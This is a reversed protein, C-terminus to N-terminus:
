HNFNLINLPLFRQTNKENWTLCWCKVVKRPRFQQASWSFWPWKGSKDVMSLITISIPIGSKSASFRSKGNNQFKNVFVLKQSNLFIDGPYLFGVFDIIHICLKIKTCSLAWLIGANYCRVNKGLPVNVFCTYIRNLKIPAMLFVNCFKNECSEADDTKLKFYLM